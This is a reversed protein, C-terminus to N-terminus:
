IRQVSRTGPHGAVDRFWVFRYPYLCPRPLQVVLWVGAAAEFVGLGGGVVATVLVLLHVVWGASAGTM